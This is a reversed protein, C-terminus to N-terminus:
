ADQICVIYWMESSVLGPLDDLIHELPECISAEDLRDDLCAILMLHRAVLEWCGHNDPTSVNACLGKMIRQTSGIQWLQLLLTDIREKDLEILLISLLKLTDLVHMRCFM